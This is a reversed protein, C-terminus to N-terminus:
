SIWGESSLFTEAQLFDEPTNLNAFWLHRAREEMETPVWRGDISSSQGATFTTRWVVSGVCPLEETSTCALSASASELVPTVKFQGAPLAERVCPYLRRHILSVLPQPVDRFSGEMFHRVSVHCVLSGRRTAEIWERLLADILGAPLFPMDVPLFLAWDAYGSRELDGLAAGIGGLPGCGPYEDRLDRDAGELLEREGLVTISTREQGREGARDDANLLPVARLTAVARALLTKGRLTLMAKDQGMRSSRGGALIYPAIREQM